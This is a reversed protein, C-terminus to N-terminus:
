KYKTTDHARNEEIEFKLESATVGQILQVSVTRPKEVPAAAARRAVVGKKWTTSVRKEPIYTRYSALLTPITAGPTLIDKTDVLNRLALQIRGESAALALKEGEEPTVELTIVDVQAPKEKEGQQEMVTGSALVLMNELVTKTMPKSDQGRTTLTVLVDVRSGPHIFGSIGSVKDVRLAMARKEPTIVAAVGGTRVTSPPALHSEFIPQNAKVPLILTRGALAKPDSFYGSPLSDKLFPATKIMEETLATGWPLDAVAVAVPQPPITKVKGVEAKKQLWDYTLLTVGLAILIAIAFMIIPKYKGM